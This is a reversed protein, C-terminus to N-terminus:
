FCGNKDTHGNEHFTHNKEALSLIAEGFKKYDDLCNYIQASLRVYLQNQVSKLSTDINYDLFLIDMLSNADEESTGVGNIEPLRIMRLYPPEMSEPIELKGTNWLSILYDSALQILRTNHGSIREIGGKSKFYEVVAPLCNYCSDDKTGQFCFQSVLDCAASSSMMSRLPFSVKKNKWMFACGWPAFMWKHFNGTFFDAEIKDFDLPFQGPCHAGDIVSITNYKQCLQVIETVPLEMTCACAVYDIVVARINKDNDFAKRFINVVEAADKIPVAIKVVDTKVGQHHELIHACANNTAAYAQNTILITDGTKMPISMLITSIATTVNPVLVIDTPDANLLDAVADRGKIWAPVKKRM